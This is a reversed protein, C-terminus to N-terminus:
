YTKNYIYARTDAQCFNYEYFLKYYSNSICGAM